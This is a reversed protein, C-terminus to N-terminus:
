RSQWLRFDLVANPLASRRAAEEAEGRDCSELSSGEGEVQAM